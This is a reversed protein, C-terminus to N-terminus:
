RCAAAPVRGEVRRALAEFFRALHLGDALAHHVHISVTVKWREGEPVIRAWGIRPVADLPDGSWAEHVTQLDVWPQSSVYVLDLRHDQTLDLTTDGHRAQIAAAVDRAFTDFDETFPAHCFNFHEEDVLAMFSPDAKSVRVVGQEDLRLRLAPVDNAAGTVVHLMAPFLSLGDRRTRQVLATVDVRASIGFFPHTFGRFLEYHSRRKWTALDIRENM